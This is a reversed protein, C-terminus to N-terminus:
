DIHSVSMPNLYLNANDIVLNSDQFTENATSSSQHINHTFPVRSSIPNTSKCALPLNRQSSVPRDYNTIAHANDPNNELIELYSVGLPQIVNDVMFSENAANCIRQFGQTTHNFSESHIMNKDCNQRIITRKRSVYSKKFLLMVIALLLLSIIVGFAVLLYLPPYADKDKLGSRSETAATSHPFYENSTNLHQNSFLFADVFFM